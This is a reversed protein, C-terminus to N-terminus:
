IIRLWFEVDVSFEEDGVVANHDAAARVQVVPGLEAVVVRFDGYHDFVGGRDVREHGTLRVAGGFVCGRESTLEETFVETKERPL